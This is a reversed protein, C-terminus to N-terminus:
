EPHKEGRRIKLEDSAIEVCQDCIHADPGDFIHECEHEAIGCFSCYISGTSKPPHTPLSMLTQIPRKEKM